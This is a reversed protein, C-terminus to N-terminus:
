VGSKREESATIEGGRAFGSSAPDPKPGSVAQGSLTAFAEDISCGLVNECREDRDAAMDLVQQYVRMTLKPDTHAVLYMARRPSVGVEALLSAFTRRLTHPTLQAVQGCGGERLLDNAREHVGAVIRRGGTPGSKRTISPGVRPLGHVAGATRNLQAPEGRLSAHPPAERRVLEATRM